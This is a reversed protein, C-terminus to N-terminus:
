RRRFNPLSLAFGIDLNTNATDLSVSTGDFNFGINLAPTISATVGGATTVQLFSNLGLDFTFM